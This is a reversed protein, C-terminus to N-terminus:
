DFKWQHRLFSVALVSGDTSFALFKLTPYSLFSFNPDTITWPYSEFPFTAEVGGRVFFTLLMFNSDSLKNVSSLYFPPILKGLPLVLFFYFTNRAFTRTQFISNVEIWYEWKFFLLVPIALLRHSPFPSLALLHRLPISLLDSSPPINLLHYPSSNKAPPM